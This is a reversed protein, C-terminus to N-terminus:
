ATVARMQTIERRNSKYRGTSRTIVRYRSQRNISAASKPRFPLYPVASALQRDFPLTNRCFDIALSRRPGIKGDLEISIYSTSRRWSIQLDYCAMGLPDGKAADEAREAPVLLIEEATVAPIRNTFKTKKAGRFTERRPSPQHHSPLSHLFRINTVIRLHRAANRGRRVRM